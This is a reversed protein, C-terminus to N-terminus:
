PFSEQFIFKMFILLKEVFSILIYPFMILKLFESENKESATSLKALLIKLQYDKRIRNM